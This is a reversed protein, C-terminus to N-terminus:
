KSFAFWFGCFLAFWTIIEGLTFYLIQVLIGFSKFLLQSMRMLHIIILIDTICIIIVHARAISETHNSVDVIHTVISSIMLIILLCEIYNRLKLIDFNYLFNKGDM